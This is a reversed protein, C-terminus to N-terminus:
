PVYSYYVNLEQTSDDIFTPLNKILKEEGSNWFVVKCGSARLAWPFLNERQM